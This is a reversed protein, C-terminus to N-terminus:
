RALEKKSIMLLVPLSHERISAMRRTFCEFINSNLNYFDNEKPIAFETQEFRHFNLLNSKLYQPIYSARLFALGLVQGDEGRSRGRGRVEVLPAAAAAPTSATTAATVAAAPEAM